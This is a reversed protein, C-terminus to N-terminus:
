AVREFFPESPGFILEDYQEYSEICWKRFYPLKFNKFNVWGESFRQDLDAIMWQNDMGYTYPFVQGKENLVLLDIIDAANRGYIKPTMIRSASAKGLVDVQIPFRYQCMLANLLLYARKLSASNLSLGSKKARGFSELPHFQIIDVNKDKGYELISPITEWSDDSISFAIGVNRFYSPAFDLFCDVRDFATKNQRIKNHLTKDGDLSVAITDVLGHLKSYRKQSFSGNTILSTSMGKEKAVSLIEELHVYLLPEGGSVSLRKYGLETADTIVSEVKEKTLYQKLKPSSSSYCHLCQYNCFQTPHIQLVKREM